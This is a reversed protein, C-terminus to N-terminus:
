LTWAEDYDSHDSYLWALLRLRDCPWTGFVMGDETQDYGCYAHSVYREPPCYDHEAVILRKAVVDRLIRAPDHRAIHRAQEESPNGEDYVVPQGRENEVRGPEDPEGDNYQRWRPGHGESAERAVREDEDLRAHLFDLIDTM